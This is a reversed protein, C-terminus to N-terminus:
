YTAADYAAPGELRLSVRAPLCLATEGAHRLTGTRVCIQDPCTSSIFRAGGPAFEIIVTHGNQGPITRTIPESLATLDQTLVPVGDAEVIATVAQPSADLWFYLGAAALLLLLLLVAERPTIRKRPEM